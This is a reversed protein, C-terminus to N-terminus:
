FSNAPCRTYVDVLQGNFIKVKLNFSYGSGNEREISQIIGKVMTNNGKNHFEIIDGNVFASFMKFRDM